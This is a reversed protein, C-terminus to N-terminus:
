KAPHVTVCWAEGRDTEVLEALGYVGMVRYGAARCARVAASKSRVFAVPGDGDNLCSGDHATEIALVPYNRATRM